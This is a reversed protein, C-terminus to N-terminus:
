FAFLYTIELPKGFSFRKWCLEGPVKSYFFCVVRGLSIM